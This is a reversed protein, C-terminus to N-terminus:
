FQKEYYFCAAFSIAATEARLICNGMSIPTIGNESFATIENESFGGEPGIFVGSKGSTQKIWQKMDNSKEKEHAVACQGVNKAIVAAEKMSVIEGIRLIRGRHSQMAASEAINQWRDRKDVLKKSNTDIKVISREAAVPIIESVGLETCKQIVLEFKDAKLLSQFVVLEFDPMNETKRAESPYAYVDNKDTKVKCIYDVGNGDCIVIEENVGIRLVNKIHAANDASMKFASGVEALIDKDIKEFFRFM